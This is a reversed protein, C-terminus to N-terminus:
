KILTWHRRLEIPWEAVQQPSVPRSLPEVRKLIRVLEWVTIDPEPDFFMM